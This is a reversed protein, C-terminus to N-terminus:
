KGNPFIDEKPEYWRDEDINWHRTDYTRFRIEFGLIHILLSIGAHDQKRTLKIHFNFWEWYEWKSFQICYAKNKTFKISEEKFIYKDNLKSLVKKFNRIIKTLM